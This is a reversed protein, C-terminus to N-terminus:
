LSVATGTAPTSDPGRPARRARQLEDGVRDREAALERQAAEQRALLAEARALLRGPLPPLGQPPEWAAGTALAEELEDLVTDWDPVTPTGDPDSM